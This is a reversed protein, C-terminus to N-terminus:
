DGIEFIVNVTAHIEAKGPEIADRGMEVGGGNSSKSLLYPTPLNQWHNLSLSLIRKIKVGAAGTIVQADSIANQTAAQIAEGRYQQPNNLSFNIHNIQNAGGKVAASLLKDALDLKLTKVQISNYVEYGEIENTQHYGEKAKKYIPQINFQCTQYEKEDLGLEKLNMLVQNMLQNNHALAYETTKKRTTVGLNVEMQDADKWITAEGNLTLRPITDYPEANCIATVFIFLSFCYCSLKM